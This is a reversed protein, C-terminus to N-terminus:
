DRRITTPSDTVEDSVEGHVPDSSFGFRRRRNSGTLPSAGSSGGAGGSGRRGGGKGPRVNTPSTNGQSEPVSARRGTSGWGASPTLKSQSGPSASNASPTGSGGITVGRRKRGGPTVSAPAPIPDLYHGPVPIFTPTEDDLHETFASEKAPTMGSTALDLNPRPQSGGSSDGLPNDSTPGLDRFPLDSQRIRSGSAGTESRSSSIMSGVEDNPNADDYKSRRPPQSLKAPNTDHRGEDSM